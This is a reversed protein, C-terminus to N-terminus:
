VGSRMPAALRCIGWPTVRPTNPASPASKAHCTLRTPSEKPRTRHQRTRFLGPVTEYWQVYLAALAGVGLIVFLELRFNAPAKWQTFVELIRKQANEYEIPSGQSRGTLTLMYEM